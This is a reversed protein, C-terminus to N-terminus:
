LINQIFNFIATESIMGNTNSRFTYKVVAQQLRKIRKRRKRTGDTPNRLDQLYIHNKGAIPVSQLQCKGKM